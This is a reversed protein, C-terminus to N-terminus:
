AYVSMHTCQVAHLVDKMCSSKTECAAVAWQVSKCPVMCSCTVYGCCSPHKLWLVVHTLAAVFSAVDDDAFIFVQFALYLYVYVAYWNWNMLSLSILDKLSGVSTKSISSCASCALAIPNKKRTSFLGFVQIEINISATWKTLLDYVGLFHTLM